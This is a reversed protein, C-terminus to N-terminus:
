RYMFWLLATLTIVPGSYIGFFLLVDPLDKFM